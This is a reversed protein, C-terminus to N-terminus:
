IIFRLINLFSIKILLIGRLEAEPNGLFEREGQPLPNPHPPKSFKNEGEGEDGGTLPPSIGRLKSRPLENWKWINLFDYLSDNPLFAIFLVTQM